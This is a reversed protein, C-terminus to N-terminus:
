EGPQVYEPANQWVYSLAQRIYAARDTNAAKARADLLVLMENPISVSIVRTDGRRRPPVFPPHPMRRKSTTQKEM